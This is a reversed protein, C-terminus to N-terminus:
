VLRIRRKDETRPNAVGYLSAPVRVVLRTLRSIELVGRDGAVAMTAYAASALGEAELRSVLQTDSEVVFAAPQM